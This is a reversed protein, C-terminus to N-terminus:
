PDVARSTVLLAMCSLLGAGLLLGIALRVLRTTRPTREGKLVNVCVEGGAQPAVVALQVVSDLRLRDPEQELDFYRAALSKALTTKGCQRPGVVAVAPYEALRQKITPVLSRPVM